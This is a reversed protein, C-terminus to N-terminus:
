VGVLCGASLIHLHTRDDLGPLRSVHEAIASAYEPTPDELAVVLRLRNMGRRDREAVGAAIAAAIWDGVREPALDETTTEAFYILLRAGVSVRRRIQPLGPLPSPDDEVRSFLEPECRCGLQERAFREFTPSAPRTESM